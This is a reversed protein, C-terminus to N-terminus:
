VDDRAEKGALVYILVENGKTCVIVRAQKKIQGFGTSGGTLSKVTVKKGQLSFELEREQGTYLSLTKRNASSVEYPGAVTYGNKLLADVDVYIGPDVKPTPQSPAAGPARDQALVLQPSSWPLSVSIFTFVTAWLAFLLIRPVVRPKSM